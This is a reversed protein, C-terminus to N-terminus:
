CYISILPIYLCEDYTNKQNRLSMYLDGLGQSDMSWISVGAEVWWVSRRSRNRLNHIFAEGLGFIGRLLAEVQTKALAHKKFGSLHTEAPTKPYSIFMPAFWCFFMCIFIQTYILVQANKKDVKKNHFIIINTCHTKKQFAANDTATYMDVSKISEYSDSFVPGGRLFPPKAVTEYLAMRAAIGHLICSYLPLGQLDNLSWLPM